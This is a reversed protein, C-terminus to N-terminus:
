YRIIASKVIVIVIRIDITLLAFTQCDCPGFATVDIKNNHNIKSATKHIMFGFRFRSREIRKILNRESHYNGMSITILTECAVMQRVLPTKQKVASDSNDRMWTISPIKMTFM